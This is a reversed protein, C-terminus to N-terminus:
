DIANPQINECVEANKDNVDENENQIGNAAHSLTDSIQNEAVDIEDIFDTSTDYIVYEVNEEAYEINEYLTESNSNSHEHEKMECAEIEIQVQECENTQKNVKQKIQDLAVVSQACKERFKAVLILEQTCDECLKRPHSDVGALQKM